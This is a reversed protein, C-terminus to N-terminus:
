VHARGIESEADMQAMLATADFRDYNYIFVTAEAIWPAFFNSWAHKAWGPSAVNLHVDGPELGIWFMTSLHGVPYSTHTHEVLKAKSTTGSTFYLLLTEDALTPEGPVFEVDARHSDPYNFGAEPAGGDVHVIRYDGAVGDFKATDAAGAIVWRANGRDIRDQLDPRNMQTTTPIMVMGLKIGALMIEWLEVRNGLIVIIKEGRVMGISRMSNALQNSRLSLEAWTRRTSSGDKEVIILANADSRAPDAAVADFWDLGFNFATFRPWRFETRALEYNTRLGLLQDRAARFEETTTM